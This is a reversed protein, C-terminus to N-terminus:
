IRVFLAVCFLFFYFPSRRNKCPGLPRQVRSVFRMERPMAAALLCFNRLPSYNIASFNDRAHKEDLVLRASPFVRSFDLSFTYMFFFRM